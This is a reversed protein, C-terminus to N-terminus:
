TKKTVEQGHVTYGGREVKPDYQPSPPASFPSFSPILYLFSPRALVSLPQVPPCLPCGMSLLCPMCARMRERV